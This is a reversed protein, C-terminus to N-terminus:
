LANRYGEDLHQSQVQRRFELTGKTTVEHLDKRVCVFVCMASVVESSTHPRPYLFLFDLTHEENTQIMIMIMNPHTPTTAGGRM